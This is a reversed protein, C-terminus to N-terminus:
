KLYPRVEDCNSLVYWHAKKIEEESILSKSKVFGFPRTRMSFISIVEIQEDHEGDYNRARRNFRTEMDPLYMSLFTLSESVIYGEAISGEPRAKNRIFGKLSGM